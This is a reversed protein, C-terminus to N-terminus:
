VQVVFGSTDRRAKGKARLGVIVGQPDLFRLDTLDGDIVPRGMYEAPLREGKKTSFVVAVNMGMHLAKEVDQHNRYTEARSFTIRYNNSAHRVEPDHKTYDYFMHESFAAMVNAYNGPEVKVDYKKSIYESTEADVTVAQKEWQIDSTLNLRFVPTLGEKRAKKVESAMNLMLATMFADRDEFYYQTRRRRAQQVLNPRENTHGVGGRGALNLCGAACGPTAMPCVQFGSELHPAFHLGVTHFGHSKGKELKPNAATLFTGTSENRLLTRARELTPKVELNKRAVNTM